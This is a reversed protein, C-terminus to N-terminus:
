KQPEEGSKRGTLADGTFTLRAGKTLIQENILPYEGYYVWEEIMLGVDDKGLINKENPEGWQDLVESKSTGLKITQTGSWPPLV